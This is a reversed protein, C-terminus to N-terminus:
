GGAGHRQAVAIWRTALPAPEAGVGQALHLAMAMALTAADRLAGHDTLVTFHGLREALAARHAMAYATPDALDGPPAQMLADLWPTPIESARQDASLRGLRRWRPLVATDGSTALGSDILLVLAAEGLDQVVELYADQAREAISADQGAVYDRVRLEPLGRVEPCGDLCPFRRGDHVYRVQDGQRERGLPYLRCALPRGAYARCGRTPADYQSCAPLGRWGPAGDFRLRIGGADTHAARFEAVALGRSAALASLEWPNLWVEKGHCCTGARTCTLPLSDDDNLATRM